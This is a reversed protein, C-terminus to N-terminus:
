ARRLGISKKFGRKCGWKTVYGESSDAVVKGNGAVLRWRWEDAKDLYFMVEVEKAAKM